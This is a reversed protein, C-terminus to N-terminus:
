RSSEYGRLRVVSCKGNLVDSKCETVNWYFEDLTFGISSPETYFDNHLWAACGPSVSIKCTNTVGTRLIYATCKPQSIESKTLVINTRKKLKFQSQRMSIAHLWELSLLHFFCKDNMWLERDFLFRDDPCFIFFETILCGMAQSLPAYIKWSKVRRPLLTM